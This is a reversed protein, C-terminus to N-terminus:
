AQGRHHCLFIDLNKYGAEAVRVCLEDLETDHDVLVAGSSLYRLGSGGQTNIAVWRGLLKLDVLEHLDKLQSAGSAGRNMSQSPM